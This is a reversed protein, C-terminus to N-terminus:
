VVILVLHLMIHMSSVENWNAIFIGASVYIAFTIIVFIALSPIPLGFEIIIQNPILNNLPLFINHM